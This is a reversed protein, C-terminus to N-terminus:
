GVEVVVQTNATEDESHYTWTVGDETSAHTVDVSTIGDAWGKGSDGVVPVDGFRERLESLEHILEDLSKTRLRKM